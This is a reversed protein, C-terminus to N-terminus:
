RFNYHKKVPAKIDWICSLGKPFTVFDGKGFSVKGGDETEVVVEGELLYCDETDSYQWDFRSVAKEWIPWTTVRKDELDKDSPKKIEIKM